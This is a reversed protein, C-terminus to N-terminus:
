GTPRTGASTANSREGAATQRLAVCCRGTGPELTANLGPSDLGDVLGGLLALNCASSCGRPTPTTSSLSCMHMDSRSTQLGPLRVTVDATRPAIRSSAHVRWSNRVRVM